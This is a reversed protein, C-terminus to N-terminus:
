NELEARNQAIPLKVIVKFREGDRKVELSGKHMSIIKESVSLGINTSVVETPNKIKYNSFSFILQQGNNFVNIDVPKEKDGYKTINSFLNDMVRRILQIDMAIYYDSGGDPSYNLDFEKENLTFVYDEILESFVNKDYILPHLADEETSFALFYEFLRDSLYKIQYAKDRCKDIYVDRTEEDKYKKGSLIELYGILITLPTRLDHSMSRVLKHSSEILENEKEHREIISVRMREMADALATLRGHGKITIRHNLDGNEIKRADTELIKYYNTMKYFNYLIIVLILLFCLTFQLTAYIFRARMDSFSIIDCSVTKDAFDLSYKPHYRAPLRFGEDAETIKEPKESGLSSDYIVDDNDYIILLVNRRNFVWNDIREIDSTTLENEFIYRQLNDLETLTSELVHEQGKYRNGIVKNEILLLFIFLVIACFVAFINIMLFSKSIEGYSSAKKKNKNNLFKNNNSM